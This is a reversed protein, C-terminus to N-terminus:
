KIVKSASSQVEGTDEDQYDVTSTIYWDGYEKAIMKFITHIIDSTQRDNVIFRTQCKVQINIQYVEGLHIQANSGM